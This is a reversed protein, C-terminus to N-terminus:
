GLATKLWGVRQQLEEVKSKEPDMPLEAGKADKADSYTVLATKALDLARATVAAVEHFSHVELVAKAVPAYMLRYDIEQFAERGKMDKPIDAIFLVFPRSAQM